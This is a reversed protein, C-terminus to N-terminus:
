EHDGGSLQMQMVSEIQDAVTHAVLSAVSRGYHILAEGLRQETLHRVAPVNIPRGEQDRVPLREAIEKALAAAAVSLNQQPDFPNSLM